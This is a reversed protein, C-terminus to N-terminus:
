PGPASAVSRVLDDFLAALAEDDLAEPSGLMLRGFHEAAAVIAHAALDLRAAGATSGAGALMAVVHERVLRRGDEIRDLVVQPTQAGTLLIPAWTRPNGRVAAAWARRGM